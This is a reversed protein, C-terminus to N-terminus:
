SKRNNIKLQRTMALDILAFIGLSAMSFFWTGYGPSNYIACNPQHVILAELLAFLVLLASLGNRGELLFAVAAWFMPNASWAGAAGAFDRSFFGTLCIMYASYGTMEGMTSKPFIHLFFAIGYGLLAICVFPRARLSVFRPGWRFARWRKWDLWVISTLWIAFISIGLILIFIMARKQSSMHQRVSCYDAAIIFAFFMQLLPGGLFIIWALPAVDAVKVNELAQFSWALAGASALALIFFDQIWWQLRPPQWGPAASSRSFFLSLADFIVLAPVLLSAWLLIELIDNM